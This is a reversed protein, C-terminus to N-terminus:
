GRQLAPLAVNVVTGDVFALSSGLITATLVLASRRGRRVTAPLWSSAKTAPNKFLL